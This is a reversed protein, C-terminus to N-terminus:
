RNDILDLVKAYVCTRTDEMQVLGMRSEVDGGASNREDRDLCFKRFADDICNWKGEEVEEVQGVWVPELGKLGKGLIGVVAMNCGLRHRKTRMKNSKETANSLTSVNEKSTGPVPVGCERPKRDAERM